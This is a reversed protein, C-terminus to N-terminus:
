RANPFVLPNVDDPWKDARQEGDRRVLHHRRRWAFSALRAVTWFHGAKRRSRSQLRASVNMAAVDTSAMRARDHAFTFLLQRNTGSSVESVTGGVGFPDQLRQLNPVRRVLIQSARSAQSNALLHFDM